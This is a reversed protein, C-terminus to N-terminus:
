IPLNEKLGKVALKARGIELKTYRKSMKIGRPTKSESAAMGNLTNIKETILVLISVLYNIDESESIHLITDKNTM